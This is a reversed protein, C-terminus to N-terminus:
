ENESELYSLDYINCANIAVVQLLIIIGGLTAWDGSPQYAAAIPLIQSREKTTM